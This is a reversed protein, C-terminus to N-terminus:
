TSDRTVSTVHAKQAGVSQEEGSAASKKRWFISCGLYVLQPFAEEVKNGMEDFLVM